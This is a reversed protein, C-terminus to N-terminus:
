SPETREPSSYAPIADNLDLPSTWPSFIQPIPAIFSLTEQTLPHTFQLSWAHLMLREVQPKQSLPKAYIPDGLIPTGLYHLHVRIQHTRGTHIDCLLLASQEAGKSLTYYDTIAPKGSGPNVVAMKLRAVPHRGIHTFIRNSPQHPASQTVALYRKQTYRKAFQSALHQHAHNTKAVVMAGSTDKDLRHVIGAREKGGEDSLHKCHHLLANVLTNQTNGVGPHVVMGSPKNLVLLADDEYLIDLPIDQPTIERSPTQPLNLTIIEGGRLILRPEVITQNCLINGSKILKQIRTRSLDKRQSALFADIREKTNEPVHLINM